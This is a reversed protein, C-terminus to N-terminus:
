ASLAADGGDVLRAIVRAKPETGGHLRRQERRWGALWQDANRIDAFGDTLDLWCARRYQWVQPVFVCGTL